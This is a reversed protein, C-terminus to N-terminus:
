VKGPKERNPKLGTIETWNILSDRKDKGFSLTLSLQKGQIKCFVRPKQCVPKQKAPGQNAPQPSAVKDVPSVDPARLEWEQM